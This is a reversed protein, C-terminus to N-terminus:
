KTKSYFPVCDGCLIGKYGTACNSVSHNLDGELCAEENPCKLFNTSNLSSRWHGKTPAIINLGFCNANKPCKQCSQPIDTTNLLFTGEKCISCRLDVTM